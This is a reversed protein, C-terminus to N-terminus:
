LVATGVRLQAMCNVVFGMCEKVQQEEDIRLPLDPAATFRRQWWTWDLGQAQLAPAASCGQRLQQHELQAAPKGACLQDGAPHGRVM